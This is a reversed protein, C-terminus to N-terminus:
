VYSLLVLTFSSPLTNISDVGLNRFSIRQTINKRDLFGLQAQAFLVGDQPIVRVRTGNKRIGAARARHQAAVGLDPFKQQVHHALRVEQHSGSSSSATMSSFTHVTRVAM